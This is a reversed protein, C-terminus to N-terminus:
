CFTSDEYDYDGSTDDDVQEISLFNVSATPRPVLSMWERFKEFSVRPLAKTFTDALQPQTPVTIM